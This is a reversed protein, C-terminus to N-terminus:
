PSSIMGMGYTDADKIISAKVLLKVASCLLDFIEFFVGSGNLDFKRGFLGLLYALLDFLHFHSTFSVRWREL